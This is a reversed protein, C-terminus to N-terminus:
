RQGVEEQDGQDDADTEALYDQVAKAALLKILQKHAETLDTSRRSLGFATLPRHTM